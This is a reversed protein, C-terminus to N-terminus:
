WLRETEPSGRISGPSREHSSPGAHRRQIHSRFAPEVGLRAATRVASISGPTGVPWSNAAPETGEVVGKLGCAGSDFPSAADGEAGAAMREVYTGCDQPGNVVKGVTEALDHLRGMRTRAYVNATLQPTAHRALTQAEKLNAGAEIVMTTYANRLAHFDVKGEPTTKPIGAAELDRELDRAPHSPVYLLPEDRGKGEASEALRAVLAAPLPQFGSKRNKTWNADLYLGSREVSLHKVRLSRLEGARLGSALAVEYADRRKPSCKAFLKRIDDVTVARRKSRPTTDFRALGRLPNDPLYGRSVCWNCFSVVGDAYSDITKGAAGADQLERLAKEVRPLSGKIDSVLELGLREKWWGLFRKRMRAHISSWPKGGRGGQSNGWALFEQSVDDFLLKRDSKKPPPRYGLRIQHHEDELRQAVRLTEARSTTGTQWRRKGQWDVFWFRWRELPKGKKSTKVYVGAM